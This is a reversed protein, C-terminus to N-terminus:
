TDRMQRQSGFVELSLLETICWAPAVINMSSPIYLREGETPQDEALCDSSTHDASKRLRVPEQFQGCHIGFLRLSFSRSDVPASNRNGYVSYSALPNMLGLEEPLQYVSVPSGSFGPRSRMEVIHCPRYVDCSLKVPETESALMAIAGFRACPLNENEGARDTLMGVMFVEDGPGLNKMVEKTVFFTEVYAALWDTDWDVFETVDVAALDDGSPSKYWDEQKLIIYRFGGAKTNLRINSGGKHAVHANSLAYLHAKNEHKDSRKAIFAGTGCPYRMGGTSADQACLFFTADLFEPKLRPV